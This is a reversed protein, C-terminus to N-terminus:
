LTIKVKKTEQGVICPDDNFLQKYEYYMFDLINEPTLDKRDNKIESEIKSEYNDPEPYYTLISSSRDIHMNINVDINEHEHLYLENGYHHKYYAKIFPMVLKTFDKESLKTFVESASWYIIREVPKKIELEEEM